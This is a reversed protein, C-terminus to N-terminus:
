LNLTTWPFIKRMNESIFHLHFICFFLTQQMMRRFDAHFQKELSIM